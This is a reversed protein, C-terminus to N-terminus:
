PVPSGAPTGAGVGVLDLLLDRVDTAAVRDGLVGPRDCLMM